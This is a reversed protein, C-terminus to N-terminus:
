FSADVTYGCVSGTITGSGDTGFNISLSIQCSEETTTGWKFGGSITMSQQTSPVGNLFSFTGSLSIYPDGNVIFGTICEWDSITETAGIQLLGSGNSTSGTLSGLVEIRGGATCNQRFDIPINYTCTSGDESCQVSKTVDAEVDQNVSANPNISNMANIAVDSIQDSLALAENETMGGVDASGGSSGTSGCGALCMAIVIAAVAGMGQLIKM